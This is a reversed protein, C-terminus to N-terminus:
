SAKSTQASSGSLRDSLKRALGTLGAWRALPDAFNVKGVHYMLELIMSFDSFAEGHLAKVLKKPEGGDTEFSVHDPDILIKAWKELVDGGFKMSLERFAGIAARDAGEGQDAQQAFAVNMVGGVAPLVERQLDGFLKLQKFPDFPVIRFTVGDIEVETINM